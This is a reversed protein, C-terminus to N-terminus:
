RESGPELLGQMPPALLWYWENQQVLPAPSPCWRQRAQAFASGPMVTCDAYCIRNIGIGNHLCCVTVLLM